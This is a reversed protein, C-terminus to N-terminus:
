IREVKLTVNNIKVEIQAQHPAHICNVVSGTKVNLLVSGKEKRLSNLIVHKVNENSESINEASLLVFLFLNIKTFLPSTFRPM